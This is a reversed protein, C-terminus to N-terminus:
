LFYINLRYKISHMLKAWANSLYNNRNSMMNYLFSQSGELNDQSSVMNFMAENMSSNQSFMTSLKLTNLLINQRKDTYFQNIEEPTMNKLKQFTLDDEIAVQEDGLKEVENNFSTVQTNKSDSNNFQRNIDSTVNQIQM